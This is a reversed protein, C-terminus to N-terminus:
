QPILNQTTLEEYIIRAVEKCGKETFHIPDYFKDFGKPMKAALDILPVKSEAAVERVAENHLDLLAKETLGDVADLAIGLQESMKFDHKITALNIGTLADVLTDYLIPQTLLVPEINNHRCTEVFKKIRLKYDPIFTPKYAKLISDRTAAPLPEITKLSDLDYFGKYNWVNNRAASARKLNILTSLIKSNDAFFFYIKGKWSYEKSSRDPKFIYTDKKSLNSLGRDNAGAMLLVMDPQLVLLIDELLIQHGFSTHGSFGANNVWIGPSKELLLSDLVVPWTFPTAILDCATTSGGVAFINYQDAEKDYDRGQFGINNRQLVPEPRLSTFNHRVVTKENPFLRIKQGEVHFQFPSYLRLFVEFIFVFIGCWIALVKVTQFIRKM